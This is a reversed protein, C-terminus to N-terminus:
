PESADWTFTRTPKLVRGSAIVSAGTMRAGWLRHRMPGLVELQARTLAPRTSAPRRVPSLHCGTRLLDVTAHRSATGVQVKRHCLPGALAQQAFATGLAADQDAAIWHNVSQLPNGEERVRGSQELQQPPGSDLGFRPVPAEPVNSRKGSAAIERRRNTM